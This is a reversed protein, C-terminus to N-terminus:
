CRPHPSGQHHHALDSMGADFGGLVIVQGGHLVRLEPGHVGDGFSIKYFQRPM